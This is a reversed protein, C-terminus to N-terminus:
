FIGKFIMISTNLQDNIYKINLCLHINKKRLHVTKVYLNIYIKYLAHKTHHLNEQKAHELTRGKKEM